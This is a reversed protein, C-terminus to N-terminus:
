KGRTDQLADPDCGALWVKESALPETVKAACVVKGGCVLLLRKGIEARSIAEIKTQDNKSLFLVVSTRGSSDAKRGVLVKARFTMDPSLGMSSIDATGKADFAGIVGAVRERELFLEFPREGLSRLAEESREFMERSEGMIPSWSRVIEDQFLVSFGALYSSTNLKELPFLYTWEVRGEDLATKSGPLGVKATVEAPTMGTVILQQLEAETYMRATGPGESLASPRSRPSCGSAWLLAALCFYPLIFIRVIEARALLQQQPKPDAGFM